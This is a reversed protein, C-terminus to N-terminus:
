EKKKQIFLWGKIPPPPPLPSPLFVHMMYFKKTIVSKSKNRVASLLSFLIRRITGRLLLLGYGHFYLAFLNCPERKNTKHLPMIELGKCKPHEKTKQPTYTKLKKDLFSCLSDTRSRFCGM